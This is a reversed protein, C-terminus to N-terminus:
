LNMFVTIGTSNFRQLLRRRFYPRATQATQASTCHSLQVPIKVALPPSPGRLIAFAEQMAARTPNSWRELQAEGCAFTGVNYLCCPRMVTIMLFAVIVIIIVTLVYSLYSAILHHVFM